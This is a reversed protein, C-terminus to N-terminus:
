LACRPILLLSYIIKYIDFLRVSLHWLWALQNYLQKLLLTILSQQVVTTSIYLTLLSIIYLPHCCDIVSVWPHYSCVRPVASLILPALFTLILHSWCFWSFQWPDITLSTLYMLSITCNDPTCVNITLSTLKMQIWAM